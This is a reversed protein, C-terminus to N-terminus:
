INNLFDVFLITALEKNKMVSKYFDIEIKFGLEQHVALVGTKSDFISSVFMEFKLESKLNEKQEDTLQLSM